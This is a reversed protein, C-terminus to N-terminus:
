ITLTEMRSLLYRLQPLHGVAPLEVRFEAGGFRVTDGSAFPERKIKANKKWTGNATDNDEIFLQGAGDLFLRAHRKSVTKDDIRADCSPERGVVCGGASLREVPLVISQGGGTPMLRVAEGSPRNYASGTEAPASAFARPANLDNSVRGSGYLVVGRRPHWGILSMGKEWLSSGREEINLYAGSGAASTNRSRAAPPRVGLKHIARVIGERNNVDDTPLGQFGFPIDYIDLSAAKVAILKNLHLAYRSEDRVFRSKASTRTWIVIAARAQRLAEFIVDTFDDAGVLEADWWVSYGRATLDNALAEALARDARAYTIFIDAM